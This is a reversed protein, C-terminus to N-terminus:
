RTVLCQRLVQQARSLHLRSETLGDGTENQEKASLGFGALTAAQEGDGLAAM